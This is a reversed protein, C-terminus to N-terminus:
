EVLLPTAQPRTMREYACAKIVYGTGAAVGLAFNTYQLM